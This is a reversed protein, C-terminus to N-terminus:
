NTEEYEIIFVDKSGDTGTVTNREASWNPGNEKAMRTLHNEMEPALKDLDVYLLAISRFRDSDEDLEYDINKSILYDEFKSMDVSETLKQSKMEKEYNDIEEMSLWEPKPDVTNWLEKMKTIQGDISGAWLQNESGRGYGLFYDCDSKLRSLLMYNFEPGENVAKLSKYKRFENISTIM